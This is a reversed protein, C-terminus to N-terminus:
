PLKPAFGLLAVGFWQHPFLVLSADHCLKQIDPQFCWRQPFPSISWSAKFIIFFFIWVVAVIFQTSCRSCRSYLSRCVRTCPFLRTPQTFDSVSSVGHSLGLVEELQWADARGDARGVAQAAHPRVCTAVVCAVPLKSLMLFTWHCVQM